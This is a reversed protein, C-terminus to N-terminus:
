NEPNGSLRLRAEAIWANAALLARAKGDEVTRSRKSLLVGCVVVIYDGGNDSSTLSNRKHIQIKRVVLSGLRGLSAEVRDGIEIWILPGRETV